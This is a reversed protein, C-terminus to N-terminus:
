MNERERERERMVTFKTVLILFKDACAEGLAWSWDKVFVCQNDKLWFSNCISLRIKRM